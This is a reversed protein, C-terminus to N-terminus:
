IINKNQFLYICVVFVLSAISHNFHISVLLSYFLTLLFFISHFVAESESSEYLYDRRQISKYTHKTHKTYM